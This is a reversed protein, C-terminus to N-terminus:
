DLAIGLRCGCRLDPPIRFRVPRIGSPIALTVSAVPSSLLSCRFANGTALTRGSFLEPSSRFDPSPRLHHASSHVLGSLLGSPGFISRFSLCLLRSLDSISRLPCQLGSIDMSPDSDPSSTVPSPSSTRGGPHPLDPADKRLRFLWVRILSIDSPTRVPDSLDSSHFSTSAASNLEVSRRPPAYNTDMYWPFRLIRLIVLNGFLTPCCWIHSNRFIAPFDSFSGPGFVVSLPGSTGSPTGFDHPDHSDHFVFPLIGSLDPFSVPLLRLGLPAVEIGVLLVPPGTARTRPLVSHAREQGSRGRPWRVTGGEARETGQARERREM